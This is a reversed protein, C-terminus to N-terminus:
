NARASGAAYTGLLQDGSLTPILLVCSLPMSLDRKM